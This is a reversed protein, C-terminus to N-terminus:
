NAGRLSKSSRACGYIGYLNCPSYISGWTTGYFDGNTSQILGSFPLDGYDFSDRTILKNDPTMRFVTGSGMAGGQSTTGYLDGNTAQIVGSSPFEGDTGSFSHAVTLKGGLKIKFVTGGGNTGGGATTGYL